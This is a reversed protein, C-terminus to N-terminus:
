LQSAIPAPKGEEAPVGAEEEETEEVTALVRDM